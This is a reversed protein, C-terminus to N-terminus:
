QEKVGLARKEEETLPRYEGLALQDDLQLPGMTLRKLYLVESGVAEMMRKIQHFRGERITIKVESTEVTMMGSGATQGETTDEATMRVTATGGVSLIELQAPLTPKDDGIDLGQAFAEVMEQTANGRIRAFYTKDVHKKPHLLRHALDGDNTILLLGETDKDLRGVPFLDNRSRDTILDLVTQERRDETASICGAPKHLMYYEYAVYSVNDGAYTVRDVAPDVKRDASKEVQGNVTVLGRKVDQKLQSRTGKGMEALYKDLRMPKM